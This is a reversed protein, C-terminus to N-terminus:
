ARAPVPRRASRIARREERRQQRARDLLAFALEGSPRFPDAVVHGDEVSAAAWLEGSVEAVLITGRPQHSSDLRALTAIAQADDPRARRITVDTRTTSVPSVPGALHKFTDILRMGLM